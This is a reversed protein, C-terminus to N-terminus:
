NPAAHTLEEKSTIIATFAAAAAEANREGVAGAFHDRIAIQV